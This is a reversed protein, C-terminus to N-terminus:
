LIVQETNKKVTHVEWTDWDQFALVTGDSKLQITRTDKTDIFLDTRWNKIDKQIAIIKAKNFLKTNRATVYKPPITWVQVPKSNYTAQQTYDDPDVLMWRLADRADQDEFRLNIRTQGDRPPPSPGVTFSKAVKSSIDIGASDLISAVATNLDQRDVKDEIRLQLTVAAEHRDKENEECEPYHVRKVTSVPPMSHSRMQHQGEIKKENTEMDVQLKKVAAEHETFQKKLAGINTELEKDKKELAAIRADHGTVRDTVSGVKAALSNIEEAHKKLVTTAEGLQATWEQNLTKTQEDMLGKFMTKLRSEMDTFEDRSKKADRDDDGDRKQGTVSMAALKAIVERDKTVPVQALIAVTM